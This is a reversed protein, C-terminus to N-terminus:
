RRAIVRLHGRRTRKAFRKKKVIPKPHEIAQMVKSAATVMATSGLQGDSNLPATHELLLQGRSNTVTFEMSGHSKTAVIRADVGVHRAQRGSVCNMSICIAEALKNQAPILEVREGTAWAPVAVLAALILLSHRM